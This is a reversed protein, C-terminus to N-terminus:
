QNRWNIKLYVIKITQNKITWISKEHIIIRDNKLYESNIVRILRVFQRWRIVHHNGIISRNKSPKNNKFNIQTGYSWKINLLIIPSSIEM